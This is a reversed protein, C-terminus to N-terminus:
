KGMQKKSPLEDHVNIEKFFSFRDMLPTPM